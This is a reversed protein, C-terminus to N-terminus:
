RKGFDDFIIKENIRIRVTCINLSMHKMNQVAKDYMRNISSM